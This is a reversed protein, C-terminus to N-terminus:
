RWSTNSWLHTKLLHSMFNNYDHILILQAHEEEKMEVSLLIHADHQVFFVGM